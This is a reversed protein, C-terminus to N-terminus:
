SMPVIGSGVENSVVIAGAPREAAISAAELSRGKIDSAGLGEEMANALWLTLCDVIVLSGDDASGLAGLLDLPEEIVPWEPPREAKHTAIRRAMEDDRAEATAIFTVPRGSDRALALALTSKGSRAGG